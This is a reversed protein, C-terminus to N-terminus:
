EQAKKKLKDGYKLEFAKAKAAILERATPQAEDHRPLSSTITRRALASTSPLFLKSSTSALSSSRALGRSTLTKLMAASLLSTYNLLQFTTPPLFPPFPPFSDNLEDFVLSAIRTRQTQCETLKLSLSFTLKPYVM